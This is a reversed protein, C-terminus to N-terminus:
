SGKSGVSLAAASRAEEDGARVRVRARDAAARQVGHGHLQRRVAGAERRLGGSVRPTPANPVLAFPVIVTPYGPARRSAPAARAPFSCRTSGTAGEAGRRHREDRGLLSTRRPSRGRLARSGSDVDMEDSIDLNSQGYKIAGARQHAINWARLETLTKVPAAAGLSTSGANFDRKMGYKFAVSCDADSGKAHELGCCANWSLFNNTPDTDVVSPIDAPDVVIAGQQKLVAIAEGDGEGAADNLGGRPTAARRAARSRRLLVRASHRHARGEAGDANLFKTYDRGPPPPCRRRRRM